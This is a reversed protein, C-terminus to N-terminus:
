ARHTGADAAVLTMTIMLEFHSNLHPQLATVQDPTLPVFVEQLDGGVSLCACQHGGQVGIRVLRGTLKREIMQPVHAFTVLHRAM